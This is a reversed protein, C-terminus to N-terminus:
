TNRAGLLAQLAAQESLENVDRMVEAARVDDGALPARAVAAPAEAASMGFGLKDSFYGALATITPYSWVLTPSLKLDFSRECRNKFEVAMLSDLGLSGLTTHSDIAAPELRLVGALLERLQRQLEEGRESGAALALLKRRMSTASDQARERMMPEDSAVPAAAALRRLLPPLSADRGLGAWDLRTVVAQATERGLLRGLAATAQAASFGWVGLRELSQISRLGGGSSAMGAGQWGGWLVSLAPLGKSRARSALADLCANAASYSAQGVQGLLSSVSSCYVLFELPQGSLCFELNLAGRVKAQFSADIAARDLETLLRDEIAAAAHVVGRIPGWAQALLDGVVRRLAAQDAVDIAIPLVEAGFREIERIRAIMEGRVDAPDMGDWEARAPLTRRSLLVIRRAGQQAMWRAINLGVGGLGGTILYCGGRWDRRLESAQPSPLLTPVFRVGGRFACEDADDPRLVQSIIADVDASLPGSAELDILGGYSKPHEVALVRTLGWIPACRPDPSSGNAPQASRTVMWLPPTATASDRLLSQAAHLAASSCSLMTEYAAADSHAALSAGWLCLAYRCPLSTEALAHAVGQAVSDADAPDVPWVDASRRMDGAQAVLRIVRNGRSELRKTLESCLASSDGFILWACREASAIGVSGVAPTAPGNKAIILAQKFISPHDEDFAPQTCLDTFGASKLVSKWQNMSILPHSSRLDHDTFRWWGATQGFVLDIWAAPETGEILALIGGPALLSRANALAAQLDQTAHLVNAAVILDFQGAAMAQEVAPREIDLLAFRLASHGRFRQEARKLFAQSVDSFVYECNAAQLLPLLHSSTGGTGAGLELIRLVRGRPLSATVAALLSRMLANPARAMASDDYLRAASELSGEPFLLQLPDCQGTLVEALRGACREVLLLEAAHTPFREILSRATAAVAAPLSRAVTWGSSDHTLTGDEALIDLMRRALAGHNARIGLREILEAPLFRTGVAPQWGLSRFAHAAYQVALVGFAAAANREAGDSSSPQRLLEGQLERGLDVVPALYDPAQRALAHTLNSRPRWELDFLLKAPSDQDALLADQTARRFRVGDIRALLAGAETYLRASGRLSADHTDQGSDAIAHCVLKGEMPGYFQLSDFGCFMDLGAGADSLPPAIGCYAILQLAADLLIPRLRQNGPESSSEPLRLEALAEREGRVLQQMARTSPGLTVGRTEFAAYFQDSSIQEACRAKIRELAGPTPPITGGTFNLSGSARLTWVPDEGAAVDAAYIEFAASTGIAAALSIHVTRTGQEPVSIAQHVVMNHIAATDVAVAQPAAALAMDILVPGAVVISGFVRHDALFAASTASLQFQHITGRINPLQLRVGHFPLTRGAAPESRALPRVGTSEFWFRRRQWPYGPIEIRRRVLGADFESWAVNVGSEYLAAVAAVLGDWDSAGRQLTHLWKLHETHPGSAFNRALATLVPHPGLELLVDAGASLLHNIGQEFQVPERIHRCWYEAGLIEGKVSRGYLNSVFEINAASFKVEAAIKRFPELMPEMLQSHFAHSVQLPVSRVGAATLKRELLELTSRKGSLVLSDPGNYAAVAIDAAADELARASIQKGGMVALMAGDRPLASMLRGRAAILKLGDSLSFVGAICAAAYEGVSHGMVASPRVGWAELMRALSYEVAFLLPQTYATDDLVANSAGKSYLLDELPQGLEARLIDSCERLAARFAPQRVWLERAMGLYQSGQGTFLYAIKPAAAPRRRPERRGIDALSDRLGDLSSALVALRHDHHARGVSATHCLDALEVQPHARIWAAYHRVLDQLAPASKASLALLHTARDTSSSRQAPAAAQEVIVHSNTGSFGFSSVGARLPQENRNWAAGVLPIRAPISALDIHTNAVTFNLHAPLWSRSMSLVVKILGAIGSAAEAHGINTKVSGILLPASRSDDAGFVARLADFEVPDGLSTGTGHAEVYDIDAPQLDADKLARRLLEQQAPLSPATLGNSAGDQNIASGRLVALITDGDREAEDLRKLVVAGCGEARVYGDAGADFTRCRGRPSLMGAQSFAISPRPSLILNVGSAIALNCEGSRLSSIAQHVAVLSSSCATDLTLAPGRTGLFYAVRGAAIAASNGTAYYIDLDDSGGAEAQLLEYDRASLGVFIGCASERMHQPNIAANELAEWHIELLLRQQPDMAQAERPSINFFAPDFEDVRQLFGGHRSVIKGRAAPDASFYADVNWRERPVETVADHGQALVHWYGELNSGGPFRAAMGLVAIAARNHALRTPAQRSSVKAAPEPEEVGVRVEEAASCAVAARSPPTADFFLQIDRLTPYSFFFTPSLPQGFLQQLQTRFGLLDLSDLGMDRLPLTWSFGAERRRGLLTRLCAELRSETDAPESSSSAAPNAGSNTAAALGPTVLDYRLLVGAGLNDTDEPRFDVVLDLLEAGHGHHFQLIPDTPQGAADRTRVYLALEDLSAGRFDKCRTVGAVQRVGGQLSSRMLMLDLLRDGLGLHRSEPLVNLGLLQVISGHEDHLSALNRCASLRLRDLDAIRQSYIVGLVEDRLEIVWQGLPYRAIRQELESPAVRMREPWCAEELRLLAPLDDVTALRVRYDQREFLNLTIRTAPLHRPFKKFYTPNPFLGAEAAALLAADAEVLLQQSFGEVADFYLSESQDINAHVVHPDQCHVELLIFGHKNIAASWRQLHEVLGQVITAPEIASGYRDAYVGLYRAGGRARLFCRGGPSVFVPAIFPRDHDLFSRIHLVDDPDVGLARLDQVLRAPDGIDGTVMIHDLDQLKRSTEELSAKNLDIGILTLPYQALVRGRPTKDRVTTLVRRLFTGDGCGMDAVYRPQSSFPERSFISILIEEVEAFYRDHQFGSSLVNMSRDVHTERGDSDLAFVSAADGFLLRDLARLMPRYSEAVALNMAREFMFAGPDTLRWSGQSGELWGMIRLLAIAEPRVAQPLQNFDHRPLDRLVERKALLALLPVVLMGDMFDAMLPNACNWRARVADCWHALLGGSGTKLYSDFDMDVLTWLDDPILREQLVNATAAFRGDTGREIWGLSEFVRLAVGLHGGNAGLHASLEGASRPAEQLAALVGGRRCALVVPVVVFGHAYRNLVDLM